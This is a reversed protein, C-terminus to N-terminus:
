IVKILQQECIEKGTPMDGLTFKKNIIREIEKMRSKERLNLIAISIGTKGARVACYGCLETVIWYEILFCINSMM